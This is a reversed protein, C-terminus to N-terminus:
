WAQVENCDAVADNVAARFEVLGNEQGGVDDRLELPINRQRGEMLRVIQSWNSRQEGTTRAKWLDSTEVGCEMAVMIRQGIPVRYGILVIGLTHSTVAKM